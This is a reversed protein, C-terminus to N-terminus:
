IFNKILDEARGWYPIDFARVASMAKKMNVERPDIAHVHNFNVIPVNSYFEVIKHQTLGLRREHKTKGIEGTRHEPTGDPYKEFREELAKITSETHAILTLNSIRERWFYTPKGWTFIAWRCLNYAFEDPNPRIWNFHEKPYLSDDEVMAIYPTTAVKAARLMQRYINSANIEESQILNIGPMDPMPKCSVTIIPSDGVADLLCKKHFAVWKEPLKNVTLFM